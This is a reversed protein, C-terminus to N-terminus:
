AFWGRLLMHATPQGHVVDEAAQRQLGSKYRNGSM